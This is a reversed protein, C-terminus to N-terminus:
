DPLLPVRTDTESNGANISRELNMKFANSWDVFSNAANMFMDKERASMDAIRDTLWVLGGVNGIFNNCITCFYFINESLNSSDLGENTASELEAIKEQLKLIEKQKEGTKEQQRHYDAEWAKAKKKLVNYDDPIKEIVKPEANQLEEVQSQLFDREERLDQMEAKVRDKEAKIERLVQAKTVVDGNALAADIVKQVVEPNKAMQQYDHAEHRDYGMDSITESKSKAMREAKEEKNYQNVGGSQKPIALLLEGIRQEAAILATSIEQAEKLTQDRIEQATTLRNVTQLKLMYANLKAKGILVFQTLDELTDPLQVSNEIIDNM